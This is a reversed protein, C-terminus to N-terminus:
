RRTTPADTSEDENQWITTESANQLEEASAKSLTEGELVNWYRTVSSGKLSARGCGRSNRSKLLSRAHCRAAAVPSDMIDYGEM